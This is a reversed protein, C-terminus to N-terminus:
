YIFAAYRSYYKGFLSDPHYTHDFKRNNIKNYMCM